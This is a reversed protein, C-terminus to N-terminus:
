SLKPLPPSADRVPNHPATSVRSWVCLFQLSLYNELSVDRFWSVDQAVHLWFGCRRTIATLIRTVPVFLLEEMTEIKPTWPQFPLTKDM